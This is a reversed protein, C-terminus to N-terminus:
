SNGCTTDKKTPEYASWWRLAECAWDEDDRRIAEQYLNEVALQPTLGIGWEVLNKENDFLFARFLDTGNQEIVIKMHAGEGAM